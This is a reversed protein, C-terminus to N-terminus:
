DNKLDYVADIFNKIITEGFFKQVTEKDVGSEKSAQFVFELIYALMVVRTGLDTKGSVNCCPNVKSPYCLIYHQGSDELTKEIQKMKEDNMKVTM